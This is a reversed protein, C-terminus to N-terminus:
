GIHTTKAWIMQTYHGSPKENKEWKLYTNEPVNEIENYWAEVAQEVISKINVDEPNKSSFTKMYINQGVKPFDPVARCDDHNFDCQRSHCRAVYELHVHWQLISMDAAKRVKDPVRKEEGLIDGNHLVVLFVRLYRSCNPKEKQQAVRNLLREDGQQLLPHIRLTRHSSLLHGMQLDHAARESQM